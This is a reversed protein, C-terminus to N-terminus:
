TAYRTWRGPPVRKLVGDKLSGSYFGFRREKSSKQIYDLVEKVLEEDSLGQQRRVLKMNELIGTPSAFLTERVDGDKPLVLVHLQDPGVVISIPIEPRRDPRFPQNAVMHFDQPSHVDRGRHSHLLAFFEEHPIIEIGKHARYQDISELDRGLVILKEAEERWEEGELTARLALKYEQEGTFILRLGTLDRVEVKQAEDEDGSRIHIPNLNGLRDKTIYGSWETGTTKTRESLLRFTTMLGKDEIRVEGPLDAYNRGELSRLSNPKVLEASEIPAIDSM